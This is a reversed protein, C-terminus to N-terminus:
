PAVPNSTSVTKTSPSSIRWSFFNTLAFTALTMVKAFFAAKLIVKLKATEEKQAFLDDLTRARPAAQPLQERQYQQTLKKAQGQNKVIEIQTGVEPLDSFGLISVAESESSRNIGCTRDFLVRLGKKWFPDATSM